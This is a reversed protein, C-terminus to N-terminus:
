GRQSEREVFLMQSLLVQELKRKAADGDDAAEVSDASANKDSSSKKSSSKSKKGSSSSEAVEEQQKRTVVGGSLVSDSSSGFQFLSPVLMDETDVFRNRSVDLRVTSYERGHLLTVIGTTADPALIAKQSPDFIMVYPGYLESPCIQVFVPEDDDNKAAAAAAANGAVASSKTAKSSRSSPVSTAAAASALKNKNVPDSFALKVGNITVYATTATASASSSSSAGTATAMATTAPRMMQKEVAAAAVSGLAKRSRSEPIRMALMNNNMAHPDGVILEEEQQELLNSPRLDTAGEGGAHISEDEDDFVSASRPASSMM